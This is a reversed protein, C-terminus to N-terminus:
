SVQIQDFTVDGDEVAETRLYPLIESFNLSDILFFFFILVDLYLLELWYIISKLFRLPESFETVEIVEVFRIVDSAEIVECGRQGRHIL